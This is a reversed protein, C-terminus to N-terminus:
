MEQLYMRTPSGSNSISIDQFLILVLIKFLKFMAKKKKLYILNIQNIQNDEQIEPIEALLNDSYSSLIFSHINSLVSRRKM